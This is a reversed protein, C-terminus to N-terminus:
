EYGVGILSMKLPDLFLELLISKSIKHKASINIVQDYSQKLANFIHDKGYTNEVHYANQSILDENPTWYPLKALFPNIAAIDQLVVDNACLTRLLGAQLEEDLRGFDFHDHTFIDDVMMNKIYSPPNLGFSRYTTELATEMKQKLSPASLYVMPIKISSYLSDFQIGADEFDRCVYDIRRGIVSRGAVWPELFAFGFGEKVSTTLVALASGMLDPFSYKLGVEFEVPLHLEEALHVWNQYIEEDKEDMNASPPLTIAVTTGKPIFLSLLLAEGINKRRIARVPYLFRTREVNPTAKVPVVENILLHLGAANLGARRL